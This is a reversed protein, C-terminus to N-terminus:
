LLFNKKPPSATWVSDSQPSFQVIQTQNNTFQGTTSAYNSFTMNNYQQSTMEINQSLQTTTFIDVLSISNTTTNKM